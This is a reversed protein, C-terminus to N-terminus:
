AGLIARATAIGSRVAGEITAPYEAYTYDGALWLGREATVPGPRPLGPRCSFTARRERIVRHWHPTPLCGLLATLEEHLATCLADDEMEDWDGEASLVCALIGDTGGMAGRDFVWQGLPGPMGLMPFPLRVDDPYALYATGIPEYAYAALQRLLPAHVPRTALLAAVNQPAVALAVHDFHHNAIKWGNGERAIERVRVSLHVDGGHATIFRMAPMPMLHGLDTRPVLMDTAERPGGLSDSLVNAFVQASATAPPTNLAALCLPEWLYRRLAGHQGEADLWAAVSCDAPLRYRRRQLRRMFVAASLKEGLRAGQARLLGLALHFPAPLAPLRLCFHGPFDLQLPMRTLTTDPHAGVRQMLRLTESYAGVILHQGNDLQHGNLEVTRARGGLQRASEFLTVPVEAAALEVACALGAWGGGVIAIRGSASM